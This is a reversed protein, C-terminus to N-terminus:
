EIAEVGELLTLTEVLSERFAQVARDIHEPEVILPPEFRFVGPNSLYYGVIVRRRAMGSICIGAVDENQFEVGLLLGKGRVEAIVQPFEAAVAQLDALMKSGLEAARAPLNEDRIARIAALGAACAMPNGGPSGFTATHLWPNEALPQWVEATGVLAGLPMVGGGLAKALCLLDPAVGSQEAAFMTGTRGLGTQVEDLILLAGQEDCAERAAPLYEEPPVNVGGEGQIPELLVAATQENVAARLAAADGFPVRVFGPVLPEFPARYSERGSASLSGMTKGHYAREAVIIESRGTSARALKIGAEVAETGSSCFFSYQLDGPTIEALLEALEAQQRNFFLPMGLPQRALQEEVAAIVAPHRHGLNFVGLGGIFDLWEEGAADTLIVGAATAGVASFGMFQLLNHLTPNVYRQYLAVTEELYAESHPTM